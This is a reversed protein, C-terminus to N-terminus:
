LMYNGWPLWSRNDCTKSFQCVVCSLSSATVFLFVAAVMVHAALWLLPMCKSAKDTFLASM